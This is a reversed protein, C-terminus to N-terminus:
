IDICLIFKVPTKNEFLNSDKHVEKQYEYNENYFIINYFVKDVWSISGNPLSLSDPFIGDKILTM